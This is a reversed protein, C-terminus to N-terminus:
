IYMLAPQYSLANVATNSCIVIGRGSLHKAYRQSTNCGSLVAMVKASPSSSPSSPTPSPSPPHSSSSACRSFGNVQESETALPLLKDDTCRIWYHHQM